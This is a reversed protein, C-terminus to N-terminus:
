IETEFGSRIRRPECKGHRKWQVQPDAQAVQGRDKRGHVDEVSLVLVASLGGEQARKTFESNASHTLGGENAEGRVHKLTTPHGFPVHTM